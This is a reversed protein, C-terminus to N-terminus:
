SEKKIKEQEVIVDRLHTAASTGNFHPAIVHCFCNCFKGCHRYGYIADKEDDMWNCKTCKMKLKDKIDEPVAMACTQCIKEFDQYSMEKM